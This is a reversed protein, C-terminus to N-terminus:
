VPVTWLDAATLALVNDAIPLTHPGAHILYAKDLHLTQIASRLSRTVKPATTRKIEFGLRHEGKVILLDLEAGSPTSWFFRQDARAQTAAVLEAIIHGEWSPGLIPHRELSGLTEIDLLAHLLGSDAVYIRPSKVQRKGVNEYWPNLQNVVM